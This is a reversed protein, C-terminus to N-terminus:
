LVSRGKDIVVYKWYLTPNTKVILEALTGVKKMLIYDENDAHLFAGPIDITVIKRNEKADIASTIFVSELAVTQHPLRKRQM